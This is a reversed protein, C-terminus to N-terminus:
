NALTYFQQMKEDTELFKVSTATPPLVLTPARNQFASTVADILTAWFEHEPSPKQQQQINSSSPPAAIIKNTKSSARIGGGGGNTSTTQPNTSQPQILQLGSRRREGSQESVKKMTSTSTTSPRQGTTVQPSNM